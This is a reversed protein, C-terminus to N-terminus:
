LQSLEQARAFASAIGSQFGEKVKKNTFSSFAAATTGGKSTVKQIWEECTYDHKNFLEIAGRFTQYSLLEAESQSFGLQKASDIMSQMFFFVYAPGSGSIATAADIMLEEETYVTKGSASLLNQVLALEIRTVASSASFVTMGTGIQSPLNPMARIVKQLGLHDQITDIRVGAMISLVVQQENIFPKITSFLLSIDQPKVALIILDTDEIYSAPEGYVTGINLKKLEDAKKMSKELILMQEHTVIKSHIFSQAFTLGMNGGGVILIKM